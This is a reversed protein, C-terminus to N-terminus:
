QPTMMMISTQHPRCALDGFIAPEPLAAPCALPTVMKCGGLPISLLTQQAYCFCDCARRASCCPKSQWQQGPSDKRDMLLCCSHSSDANLNLAAYRHKQEANADM